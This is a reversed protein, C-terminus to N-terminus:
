RAAEQEPTPPKGPGLEDPPTRMLMNLKSALVRLERGAHYRAPKGQTM